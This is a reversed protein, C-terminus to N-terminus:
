IYLLWLIFISCKGAGPHQWRGGQSLGWGGELVLTALLLCLLLPARPWHFCGHEHWACPRPKCWSSWLLGASGWSLEAPLRDSPVSWDRSAEAETEKDTLTSMSDITGSHQDGLQLCPRGWCDLPHKSLQCSSTTGAESTHSLREKRPPSTHLASWLLQKEPTNNLAFNSILLGLTTGLSNWTVMHDLFKPGGLEQGGTHDMSTDQLSALIHLVEGWVRGRVCWLRESDLEWCEIHVTVLLRGPVWVREWDQSNELEFEGEWVSPLGDGESM